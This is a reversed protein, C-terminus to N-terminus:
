YVGAYMWVNFRGTQSAIVPKYMDIVFAETSPNLNALEWARTWNNGEEGVTADLMHGGGNKVTLANSPARSLLDVSFGTWMATGDAAEILAAGDCGQLLSVDGWAVYSPPGDWGLEVWTGLNSHPTNDLNYTPNGRVLRGQFTPCVSLFIASGATM